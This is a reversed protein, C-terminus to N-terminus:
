GLIKISKFMKVIIEKNQTWSDLGVDVVAGHFGDGLVLYMQMRGDHEGSLLYGKIGTDTVFNDKKYDDEPINIHGLQGYVYIKDEKNGDLYFNIGGDPSGEHEKTAEWTKEVESTWGKPYEVSFNFKADNYIAKENNVSINANSKSSEKEESRNICAPLLLVMAIVFILLVDKKKMDNSGELWKKNRNVIFIKL